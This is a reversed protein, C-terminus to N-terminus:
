FSLFNARMYNFESIFEECAERDALVYGGDRTKGFYGPVKPFATLPHSSYIIWPSPNDYTPAAM